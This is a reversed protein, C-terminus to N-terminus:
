CGVLRHPRGGQMERCDFWISSKKFCSLGGGWLRTVKPFGELITGPGLSSLSSHCSRLRVLPVLQKKKGKNQYKEKVWRPCGIVNNRWPLSRACLCTGACPDKTPLRLQPFSLM